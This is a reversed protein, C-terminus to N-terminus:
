AHPTIVAAPIVLFLGFTDVLALPVTFCFAVVLLLYVHQYQPLPETYSLNRATTYAQLPTIVPAAYCLRRQMVISM